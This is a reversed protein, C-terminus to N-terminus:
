VTHRRQSQSKGGLMTNELNMGAPAHMLVEKRKIAPYDERTHIYMKKIWKDNISM